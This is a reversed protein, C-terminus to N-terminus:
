KQVYRAKVRAIRLRRRRQPSRLTHLDIPQNASQEFLHDQKLTSLPEQKAIIEKRRKVTKMWGVMEDWTLCYSEGYAGIMRQEEGQDDETEKPLITKGQPNVRVTDSLHSSVKLSKIDPVQETTEGTNTNSMMSLIALTPGVDHVYSYLSQSDVWNYPTSSPRLDEIKPKFEEPFNSSSQSPIVRIHTRVPDLTKLGQERLQIWNPDQKAPDILPDEHGTLISTTSNLPIVPRKQHKSEFISM